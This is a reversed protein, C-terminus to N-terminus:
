HSRQARTMVSVWFLMIDSSRIRCDLISTAREREAGTSSVPHIMLSFREGAM